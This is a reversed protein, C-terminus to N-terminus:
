YEVVGSDDIDVVLYSNEMTLFAGMETDPLGSVNYTYNYVTGDTTTTVATMTATGDIVSITLDVSAGDMDELFTDWDYDSTMGEEQQDDTCYTGWGYNDARVVMYETYDSDYRKKGNTLVVLWNDWNNAKDSYNVFSFHFECDPSLSMVYPGFATWWSTTNDTEGYTMEGEVKKGWYTTTGEDDYGAFVITTKRPSAEWDVERCVLLKTDGITLTNTSADFSWTDGDCPAGYVNNGEALTMLTPEMQTQYNYVMEINEWKGVLEDETIAKQPVAGYREPMVVPWGDETWLIRRVHGMMIANAASDDYANEPLRGQSSYFWNGDGDNFVACHSIGVWGYDISFKYPHTVIPYAEGGDNTVDTGNIGVYPGDVSESRVVRTNYAVSLEDYAMFLYYYGDHYVVEPAESGQWRNGMERTNVLTGYASIDDGWPLGLEELPLGTDPDMQLAAFGSHWSGYIMWHEGEPTIIYSPDIANWKYYCNEYDTSSVNFELGKDSANTIVYGRDEWSDVDDPTATEMLGIFARESWTGDGDLTGPCTIVYYMRYLTDNVCRVCPAWFGFQTDDSFDTESDELGMEARIENLKTEVWDPVSPMTTGLFEWEVLNRSRRCMFHGHGEHANGFSADTTYMYYYGDAAKMVSPDHVNALNWEDRDEWDAISRYYDSYDPSVYNALRDDLSSLSVTSIESIETGGFYWNGDDDQTFAADNYGTTEITTGDQKEVVFQAKVTTLCTALLVSMTLIKEKM